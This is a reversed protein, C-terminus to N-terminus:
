GDSIFDCATKDDEVEILVSTESVVDRRGHVDGGRLITNDEVAGGLAEVKGVVERTETDPVYCMRQGETANASVLVLHLLSIRLHLTGANRIEGQIAALVSIWSSPVIYAALEAYM